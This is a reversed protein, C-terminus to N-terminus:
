LSPTIVKTAKMQLCTISRTVVNRAETVVRAEGDSAVAAHAEHFDLLRGLRDCGARHRGHRAHLDLGVRGHDLLGALSDHLQQKEVM